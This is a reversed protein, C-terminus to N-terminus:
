KSNKVITEAIQFDLLNDIDISRERPMIYAFDNDNLISITGNNYVIKRIYLAGNIRYYKSLKQRPLNVSTKNYENLSLSDDLKMCWLPSHDVECVATVSDAKKGNLLDFGNVIDCSTRLPSTPQLLCVADFRKGIEAYKNLVEVVTDWSSANDDSNESSRLFPVEAGYAKAIEAYEESDTSVMVTDFVKSELAAEVSYVLLPKGNLDLINKNHLGKSKSRAPIIAIRKM